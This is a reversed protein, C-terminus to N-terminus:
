TSQACHLEMYGSWHISVVARCEEKPRYLLQGSGDGAMSHLQSQTHTKYTYTQVCTQTCIDTQRLTSNSIVHHM